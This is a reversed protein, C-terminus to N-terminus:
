CNQWWRFWLISYKSIIGESEWFRMQLYRELIEAYIPIQVEAGLGLSPAVAVRTPEDIEFGMFAGREIIDDM